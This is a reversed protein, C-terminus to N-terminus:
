CSQASTGRVTPQSSSHVVRLATQAVVSAYLQRVQAQPRATQTVTDNAKVYRFSKVAPVVDLTPLAYEVVLQRSQPVYVLRRGHPFGDPYSAAELVLDLYAVVADPEGATLGRQLEGVQAVQERHAATLRAAEQDHRERARALESPDLQYHTALRMPTGGPAQRPSTM